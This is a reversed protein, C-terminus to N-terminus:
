LVGSEELNILPTKSLIWFFCGCTGSYYCIWAISVIDDHTPFTLLELMLEVIFHLLSTPQTSRYFM